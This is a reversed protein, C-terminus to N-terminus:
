KKILKLFDKAVIDHWPEGFHALDRAKGYNKLVTLEQKFTFYKLTPITILNTNRCLYKLADLNRNYNSLQNELTILSGDQIYRIYDVYRSIGIEKEEYTHLNISEMITDKRGKHEKATNALKPTTIVETRSADPILCFVYKPNLRPLFTKLVRYTQDFSAGPIGLNVLSLGEKNAVKYSFTQELNLATGFTNSCGIFVASQKDTLPTRFGYEYLKYTLQKLQGNEDLWGFKKHLDKQDKPVYDSYHTSENKESYSYRDFWEMSIDQPSGEINDFSFNELNEVM